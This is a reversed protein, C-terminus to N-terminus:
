PLVPNPMSERWRTFEGIMEKALGPHETAM